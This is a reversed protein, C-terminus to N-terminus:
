GDAAGSPRAGSQRRRAVEFCALTAAAAVNLSELPGPLPIAVALDCRQRVLRGLGRGEGGLVLAIPQDAVPLDWLPQAARADLAVTWMGAGALVALAAPIGPVAIVPLYEAAGAAAKLAAPTLSVARHRRTVLGTAGASVASRMVAGLNRPDTVGDLVVVLAAGGDPGGAALARLEAPPLPDARAVVGQPSESLALVDLQGREVRRVAVGAEAALELIEALSGSPDTGEAVTLHHVRRRRARLLERVAQRGEVQEGGV